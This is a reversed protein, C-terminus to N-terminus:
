KLCNLTALIFSGAASIGDEHLICDKLMLVVQEETLQQVDTVQERLIRFGHSDV